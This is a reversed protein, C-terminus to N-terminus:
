KTSALPVFEIRVEKNLAKAVRRLMSLSHGEYDADELRSIVSRSTGIMKALQQQTLNAETRLDYIKQAIEANAYDDEIMQQMRPNNKVFLHNLIEVADTTTRKKKM